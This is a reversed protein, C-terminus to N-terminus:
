TSKIMTKTPLRPLPCLDKFLVKFAEIDREYNLISEYM